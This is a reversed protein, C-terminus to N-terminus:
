ILIYLNFKFSYGKDIEKIKIQEINTIKIESHSM